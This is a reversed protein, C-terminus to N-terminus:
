RPPSLEVQSLTLGGGVQGVPSMDLARNLISRNHLVPVTYFVHFRRHGTHLVRPFSRIAAEMEADSYPRQFGYLAVAVPFKSFLRAYLTDTPHIIVATTRALQLHKHIITTRAEGDFHEVVGSSFVVDHPSTPEFALIDSKVLTYKEPPVDKFLDRALALAKDSSDVMTVHAAGKDLLLRSLRGTGCGLELLRKGVVPCGELFQEVIYRTMFDFRVRKVHRWRGRDWVNSSPAESM